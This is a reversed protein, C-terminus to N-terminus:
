TELDGLWFLDWYLCEWFGMLLVVFVVHCSFSLRSFYLKSGSINGGSIYSEQKNFTSPPKQETGSCIIFSRVEDDILVQVIILCHREVILITYAHGTHINSLNWKVNLRLDLTDHSTKLFLFSHWDVDVNEESIDSWHWMGLLIHWKMNRFHWNIDVGVQHQFGGIKTFHLRPM